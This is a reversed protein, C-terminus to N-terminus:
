QQAGSASSFTGELVELLRDPIEIQPVHGVGDFLHLGVRGPARLAQEWPIIADSKGWIIRTPCTLGDLVAQLDFGPVGRPFLDLAMQQQAARLAADSRSAMAAGVFAKNVVSENAVMAKLWRELAAPTSARALGTVFDGNFKTGLGGPAILTLSAVKKPRQQALVLACAGGLSHGVIHASEISLADFAEIIEAALSDFDPTRRKPSQGHNPLDIGIVPRSHSLIRELPYWSMADAGFGHLLVIPTGRNVGSRQTRLPGAEDAPLEILSATDQAKEVDRLKIRGTASTVDIASLDVGGREAERRAAPTAIVRGHGATKLSPEASPASQSSVPLSAISTTDQSVQVGEITDSVSTGIMGLIESLAAETGPEVLIASLVGDCPAGIETAAKATEVTVIPDGEKVTDGVKATWEMVVVSEMYEGAAAGITIPKAM